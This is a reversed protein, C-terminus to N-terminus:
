AWTGRDSQDSIRTVSCHRRLRDWALSKNVNPSSPQSMSVPDKGGEGQPCAGAEIASKMLWRSVHENAM